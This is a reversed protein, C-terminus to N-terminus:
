QGFKYFSLRLPYKKGPQSTYHTAERWIKGSTHRGAIFICHFFHRGEAHGIKELNGAHVAADETLLEITRLTEPGRIHIGDAEETIRIAGLAESIKGMDIKEVM